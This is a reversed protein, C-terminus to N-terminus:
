APVPEREFVAMHDALAKQFAPRAECRRVYAALVANDEVISGTLRLMRLVTVMLIDAATFANGMLYDQEALCTALVTLRNQVMEEVGARREAAWAKDSHVVDITVLQGAYPEISNLAAFMWQITRARQTPGGPLLRDSKEAIHLVIAGTEFLTFGDEEVAPVQGFPQLARYDEASIDEGVIRVQYPFGAEEMAWRVRLDRVLGHAFPPVAGLTYCTLM